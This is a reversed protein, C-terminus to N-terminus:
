RSPRTPDGARRAGTPGPGEPAALRFFVHARLPHDGALSPHNFDRSPDRAFGLRRMVAQSRENSAATFTVIESMGLRSFGDALVAPMVEGVLRRGWAAPHLRWVAEVAPAFPLSAPTPQLGVAGVVAGDDGTVAWVGWGREEIGRKMRLFIAACVDDPFPGALWRAVEPANLLASHVPLDDERWARLRPHPSM